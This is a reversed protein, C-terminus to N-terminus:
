WESIGYIVQLIGRSNNIKPNSGKHYFSTDEIFSTGKEGKILIIRDSYKESAESDSIRRNIFEKLNKKGKKEIFYHPGSKEDVDSLYIFLKLFKFDDVDYHFGFENGPPNVYRGSEDTSSFTWWIQTSQVIPNTGFYKGAINIIKNNFAIDRVLKLDKHPNLYRCIYIGDNETKQNLSIKKNKDRNVSFKKNKLNELIEDIVNKKLHFGKFIGKKQINKLINEEDDFGLFFNNKSIFSTENKKKFLTLYLSYFFSNLPTRSLVRMIRKDLNNSTNKLEGIISKPFNILVDKLFLIM